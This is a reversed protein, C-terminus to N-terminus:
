SSPRLEYIRGDFSLIYLEGHEDEGFSAIQLDSDILEMHEIVKSEEFRLAWIKGSCFDGYVYAGYLSQLKAGRYVYGGTISCGDKHSYELIPLELGTENCSSKFPPYCHLGEMVNWGYNGGRNIVNVEEFDNQGVDGVLLLGTDMDFTFRWPNRLGYAWIEDRLNNFEVYPNDSPIRYREEYSSASVDIRLISGLLNERNQGNSHPDGAAGGDGLGIYLYGNPGFVLSGGNHNSYPQDVELIVVESGTDARNPDDLSVSFRSIISRRPESATYYVYFYGNSKYHPDFALGLLGEENGGDNVQERIDLFIAASDVSRINPFVLIQGPQLILFLRDTGDGGYTLYVMRNFSFNPFAIEISMKQLPERMQGKEQEEETIESPATFLIVVSAGLILILLISLILVKSATKSVPL